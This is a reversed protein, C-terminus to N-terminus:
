GQTTTESYRKWSWRQLLQNRTSAPCQHQRSTWVRGLCKSNLKKLRRHLIFFSINAPLVHLALHPLMELFLLVINGKIKSAFQKNGNRQCSDEGRAKFLVIQNCVQTLFLQMNELLHGPVPLLQVCIVEKRKEAREDCKFSFGYAPIGGAKRSEPNSEDDKKVSSNQGLPKQTKRKERSKHPKLIFAYTVKPTNM